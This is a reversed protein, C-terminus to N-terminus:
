RSFESFVKFISRVVIRTLSCRPLAACFYIEMESFHSRALARWWMSSSLALNKLETQAKLLYYMYLFLFPSFLIFIIIMGHCRLGCSGEFPVPRHLSPLILSLFTIILSFAFQFFFGKIEEREARPVRAFFTESCILIPRCVASVRGGVRM